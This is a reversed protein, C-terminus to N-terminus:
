FLYQLGCVYVGSGGNQKKAWRVEMLTPVGVPLGESVIECRLVSQPEVAKSTILCIGGESLNQIRGSLVPVKATESQIAPLLSARVHLVQSFRPFFRSEHEKAKKM